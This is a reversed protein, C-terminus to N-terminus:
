VKGKADRNFKAYVIKMVAEMAQQQNRYIPSEKITTAPLGYVADPFLIVWGENFQQALTDEAFHHPLVTAVAYMDFILTQQGEIYDVAHKPEIWECENAGLWDVPQINADSFFQEFLLFNASGEDGLANIEDAITQPTIGHRSLCASLIADPLQGAENLGTIMAMLAAIKVQPNLDAFALKHNM